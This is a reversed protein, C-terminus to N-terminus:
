PVRLNLAANVLARWYGRDQASDIWNAANIGVRLRCEERLTLSWTDCGYLVTKYIKIKLNKSLLRSSLLTQVSYYCSNGATLRRKIEEQISNQNTLLSGFYINSTSIELCICTIWVCDGILIDLDKRYHNFLLSLNTTLEKNRLRTTGAQQHCQLIRYQVSVRLDQSIQNYVIEEKLMQEYMIRSNNWWSM